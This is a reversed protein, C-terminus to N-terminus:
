FEPSRGTWAGVFNPRTTLRWAVLLERDGRRLTRQRRCSAAKLTGASFSRRRRIRKFDRATFADDDIVVWRHGPRPPALHYIRPEAVFYKPGIYVAPLREGRRWMKKAQGPPLGYPKNAL